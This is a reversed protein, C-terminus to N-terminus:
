QAVKRDSGHVLTLLTRNSPFTVQARTGQGQQSTLDFRGGHMHVLAEVIPLGLGTGPIAATEHAHGRAFPTKITDLEEPDIGPGNDEVVVRVAGADVIHCAIVVLGGEQTYRVANTTLNLLIQRIARRDAWIMVPSDIGKMVITIQKDEPMTGLMARADRIAQSLDVDGEELKWTGAEIRSLDLLDNIISLLHIGSDHIYGLYERDRERETGTLRKQTVEAFGIIANLPTRLEHSMNALFRSKMRTAEQAERRAAFETRRSRRIRLVMANFAGRLDDIERLHSGAGMPEILGAGEGRGLKEAAQRIRGLPDLLLHAGLMALATALALATMLVILTQRKTETVIREMEQEPQNVLVGWGVGEVPRFAGIMPENLAPSVFGDRGTEGAMLQQVIDLRALSKPPSTWAPDPHAILLGDRDLIAVHGDQGFRMGRALERIYATGLSGAAIQRGMRYTLLVEPRGRADMRVGSVGVGGNVTLGRLLMLREEGTSDPCPLAETGQANKLVGTIADFVCIHNLGLATIATSHDRPEPTSTLDDAIIQFSTSVDTHYRELAMVMAKAYAEHREGAREKELTLAVSHPLEWALWVPIAAVALFAMAAATKLSLHWQAM